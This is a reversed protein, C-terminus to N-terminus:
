VLLERSIGFELTPILIGPHVTSLSDEALHAGLMPRDRFDKKEVFEAKAVPFAGVVWSLRGM